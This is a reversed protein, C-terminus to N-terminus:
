VPTLHFRPTTKIQMEMHGPITLMKEHRKKAM